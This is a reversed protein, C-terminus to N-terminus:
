PDHPKRTNTLIVYLMLVVCVKYGLEVLAVLGEIM